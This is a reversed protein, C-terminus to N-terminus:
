KISFQQVVTGVPVRFEQRIVRTRLGTGLGWNYLSSTPDAEIKTTRWYGINKLEPDEILRVIDDAYVSGPKMSGDNLKQLFHYSISNNVSGSGWVFTGSIGDSSRMAVLTGPGYVVERMPVMEGIVALAVVFGVFGGIATGIITGLLFKSLRREGICACIIGIALGLAGLLLITNM